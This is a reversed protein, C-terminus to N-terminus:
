FVSPLSVTSHKEKLIKSITRIRKSIMKREAEPLVPKIGDANRHWTLSSLELQLEVVTSPSREYDGQDSWNLLVKCNLECRRTNKFDKEDEEDEDGETESNEVDSDGNSEMDFERRQAIAEFTEDGNGNHEIELASATRKLGRKGLEVGAAAGAVSTLEPIDSVALQTIKGKADDSKM